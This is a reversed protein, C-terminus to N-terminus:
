SFARELYATPPTAQIAPRSFPSCFLLLATRPWWKTILMKVCLMRQRRSATRRAAFFFPSLMALFVRELDKM